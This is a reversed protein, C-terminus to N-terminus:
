SRRSEVLFVIGLGAPSMSMTRPLSQVKLSGLKLFFQSCSCDKQSVLSTFNVVMAQESHHPCLPWKRAAASTQLSEM